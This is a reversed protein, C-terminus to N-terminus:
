LASMGSDGITILVAWNKLLGRGENVKLHPLTGEDDWFELQTWNARRARTECRSM